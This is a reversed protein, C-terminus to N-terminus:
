SDITVIFYSNIRSYARGAILVNITNTNIM